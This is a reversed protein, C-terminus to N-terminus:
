RLAYVCYTGPGAQRPCPHAPAHQLSSHTSLTPWGMRVAHPVTPPRGTTQVTALTRKPSAPLKPLYLSATRPREYRARPGDQCPWGPTPQAPAHRLRTKKAHPRAQAPVEVAVLLAHLDDVVMAGVLAELLEQALLALLAAHYALRPRRARASGARKPHHLM